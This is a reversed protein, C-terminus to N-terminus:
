FLLTLHLYIKLQFFGFCLYEFKNIQKSWILVHSFRRLWCSSINFWIGMDKFLESKVICLYRHMWYDYYNKLILLIYHSISSFLILLISLNCNICFPLFIQSPRSLHTLSFLLSLFFVIDKGEDMNTPFSPRM